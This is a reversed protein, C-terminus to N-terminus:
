VRQVHRGPIEEHPVRTCVMGSAKGSGIAALREVLEPGQESEEVDTETM